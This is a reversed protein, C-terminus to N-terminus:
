LKTQIIKNNNSKMTKYNIILKNNDKNSNYNKSM